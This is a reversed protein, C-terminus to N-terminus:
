PALRIRFYQQDQGFLAEFPVFTNVTTVRMEKWLSWTRLDASSEILYPENALGAVNLGLLGTRRGVGLRLPVSQDRHIHLVVRGTEARAAISSYAGYVVIFYTRGAAVVTELRSPRGVEEDVSSAIRTLEKVSTGRYLGLGTDFNSGETDITVSGTFSPAWRYWVSPGGPRGPRDSPLIPEGPERTACETSGVVVAADVPIEEAHAFLDNAPPASCAIYDAPIEVEVAALNNAKHLEPIRSDLISSWNWSM